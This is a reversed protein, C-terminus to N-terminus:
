QLAHFELSTCAVKHRGTLPSKSVRVEDQGEVEYIDDLGNGEDDCARAWSTEPSSSMVAFHCSHVRTLLGHTCVSECLGRLGICWCACIRKGECRRIRNRMTMILMDGFEAVPPYSQM